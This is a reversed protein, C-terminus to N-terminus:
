RSAVLPVFRSSVGPHLDRATSTTAPLGGNIGHLIDPLPRAEKVNTMRAAEAAMSPAPYATSAVFLTAFAVTAGVDHQQEGPGWDIELAYACRAPRRPRVAFVRTRTRLPLKLPLSATTEV